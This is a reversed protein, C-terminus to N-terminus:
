ATRRRTLRGLAIATLFGVGAAIALSKGPYRGVMQKSKGLSRKLNHEKVYSGAKDLKAAASEALNEVAKSGERVNRRIQSAAAHLSGATENGAHDIADAADRGFDSIQGAFESVKGSTVTSMNFGEVYGSLMQIAMPM